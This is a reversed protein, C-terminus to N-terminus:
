RFFCNVGAHLSVIRGDEAFGGITGYDATTYEFEGGLSSSIERVEREDKLLAFPTTGPQVGDSTAVSLGEELTWGVFKDDQFTLTLPGYSSFQMPGGGCDSRESRKPKSGFALALAPEVTERPTGFQMTPKGMAAAGDAEVVLVNFDIDQVQAATSRSLVQDGAIPEVAPDDAANDQSGCATLAWPLALLSAYRIM